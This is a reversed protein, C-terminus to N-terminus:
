GFTGEKGLEGAARKVLTKSQVMMDVLAWVQLEEPTKERKTIPGTVLSENYSDSNDDDDSAPAPQESAMIRLSADMRVQDGVQILVRDFLRCFRKTSYYDNEKGNSSEEEQFADHFIQAVKTRRSEDTPMQSLSRILEEMDTIETESYSPYDDEGATSSLYLPGIIRRQRAQLGLSRFHPRCTPM